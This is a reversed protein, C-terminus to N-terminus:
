FAQGISIHLQLRDFVGPRDHLKVSRTLPQLTTMNRFTAPDADPDTVELCPDGSCVRTTIVSHYEGSGTRYGLDVRVPGIPSSYRVGFGPAWALDALSYEFTSSWVQGFDLFVAGGLNKGALPLRLELNGELLASGGVPRVEFLRPSLPRPDCTGDNIATGTCGAGGDATDAALVGAADVTLVKPGLRAQAFGRVSNPGGAFFRKQPHVGLEEATGGRGLPRAVGSRLRAAAVVGGGVSQYNRLEGVARAYAFESGTGRSAYELDVDLIHGSTPTFLASSRDRRFTIGVPALWHSAQILKIEKESCAVFSVCFFVDSKADLKTLEPAYGLAVSTRPSLARRLSFQAGLATRVFVDPIGRREGFVGGTFANKPSFLWPQTFEAALSGALRGYVGTGTDFCPFGALPEALVNSIRGRLELRRAGGLFNRHTWRGEANLCEATSLGVGLRVSRSAGELVRITVPLITDQRSVPEVQIEAHRFVDLSYLNRQSRLLEKERFVDGPGFTLMRRVLLTPTRETGVVTIDGFRVPEGPVVEFGVQAALPSDAPIFYSALVEPRPFGANRLRAAITDRSEEHAFLSFASGVRLPLDALLDPPGREPEGKIDLSAVRVPSGEEIQFTVRVGGNIRLTEASVEAQRFGRARYFLQLRLVDHDLTREDFFRRDRAFGILCLPLLAPSRCRTATSVIAAGLQEAGFTRNGVFRIQVLEEGDPDPSQANLSAPVLCAATICLVLCPGAPLALRRRIARWDLSRRRAKRNGPLQLVM